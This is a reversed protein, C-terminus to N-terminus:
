KVLNVANTSSLESTPREPANLHKERWREIIQRRLAALNNLIRTSFIVVAAVMMVSIKNDGVGTQLAFYEGLWLLGAALLVNVFFGSIFVANDFKNQMSARLGGLITDLGALIAIAAYRALAENAQLNPSPVWFLLFGILLALLPLLSM